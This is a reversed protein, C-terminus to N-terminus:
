HTGTTVHDALDLLTAFAPVTADPHRQYRDILAAQMSVGLAGAVDSKPQDGIHLARGPEVALAEYAARFTRPDPKEWGVLASTVILDMQEAFAFHMCIITVDKDANSIVATKIGAQRIRELAPLVDPFVRYSRHDAETEFESLYRARLDRATDLDHRLGASELWIQMHRLRFAERAAPERDRIPAAGNEITYFDEAERDAARLAAATTAIGASACAHALREWRPPNLEILTDYLDFTVLEPPQITPATPM